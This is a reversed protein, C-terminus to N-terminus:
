ENSKSDDSDSTSDDDDDDDSSSSSSSDSDSDSESDSESNDSDSESNDSDSDSDDSDGDSNDSDSDSGSDSDDSDSDSESESDSESSVVSNDDDDTDTVVDGEHITSLISHIDAGTFFSSSDEKDIQHAWEEVTNMNIFHQSLFTDVFFGFLDKLVPKEEQIYFQLSRIVALRNKDDLINKKILLGYKSLLQVISKKYSEPKTELLSFDSTNLICPVTVRLTDEYTKNESMKFCNMQMFTDNIDVDFCGKLNKENIENNINNRRNEIVPDCVDVEVEDKTVVGCGNIGLSISADITVSEDDNPTYLDNRYVKKNTLSISDGIIVNSGLVCHSLHCNKGIHVNHGIICNDVSSGDDIQINNWLISNTIIVGVSIVNNRGVVCSGISCNGKLHTENGILTEPKLITDYDKYINKYYIKQDNYVSQNENSLSGEPTYPYTWRRLIDRTIQAYSRIDQIYGAYSRNLVYGFYRYGLENNNVEDQLFDLHYDRYDNIDALKILVETSCVDIYTDYLDNRVQINPCSYIDINSTTVRAENIDDSYGLLQNTSSDYLVLLDSDLKRIPHNAPVQKFIATLLNNKDKKGREKHLKLVTSLDLNMVSMGTLIIFPDSTILNRDSIDKLLDVQCSANKVSILYLLPNMDEDEVEEGDLSALKWKTEQFHKKFQEEGSRFAIYIEKVGQTSLWQISYDIMPVNALPFLALPMEYTLPAFSDIFDEAILIAQLPKEIEFETTSSKKNM